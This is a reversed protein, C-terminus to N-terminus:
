SVPVPQCFCDIIENQCEFSFDDDEGDSETNSAAGGSQPKPQTDLYFLEYITGISVDDPFSKHGM